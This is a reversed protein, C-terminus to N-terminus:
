RNGSEQSEDNGSAKKVKWIEVGTKTDHVFAAREHKLVKGVIWLDGIAGITNIGFCLVAFLQLHGSAYLGGFFASLFVFPALAIALLRDRSIKEAFTVYVLPLALGFIPRHGLLIAVAGHTGEHLFVVVFVAALLWGLLGIRPTFDVDLKLNIFGLAVGVVVGYVGLATRSVSYTAVRVWEPDPIASM